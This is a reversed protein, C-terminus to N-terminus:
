DILRCWLHQDVGIFEFVSNLLDRQFVGTDQVADMQFPPADGAAAIEFLGEAVGHQTRDRGFLDDFFVDGAQDEGATRGTCGFRCLDAVAHDGPVRQIGDDVIQMMTIHGDVGKRQKM